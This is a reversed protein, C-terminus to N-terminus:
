LDWNKIQFSHNTKKSTIHDNDRSSLPCPNVISLFTSLTTSLPSQLAFSMFPVSPVSSVTGQLVSHHIANLNPTRSPQTRPETHPLRDHCSSGRVGGPTATCCRPHPAQPNSGIKLMPLCFHYHSPYTGWKVQLSLVLSVWAEPWQTTTALTPLPGSHVNKRTGKGPFM